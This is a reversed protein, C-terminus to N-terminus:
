TSTQFRAHILCLACTWRSGRYLLSMKTWTLNAGTIGPSNGSTLLSDHLITFVNFSACVQLHPLKQQGPFLSLFCSAFAQLYAPFKKNKFINQRQTVSNPLLSLFGRNAVSAPPVWEVTKYKEKRFCKGTEHQHISVFLRLEESLLLFFRYCFQKKQLWQVHRNRSWFDQRFARYKPTM